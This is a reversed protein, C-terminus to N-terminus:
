CLGGVEFIVHWLHFNVPVSASKQRRNGTNTKRNKLQFMKPILSLNKRCNRLERLTYVAYILCHSNLHWLKVLEEDDFSNDHIYNTSLFMIIMISCCHM